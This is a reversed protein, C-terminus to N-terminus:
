EFVSSLVKSREARFFFRESLTPLFSSSIYERGDNYECAAIKTVNIVLGILKPSYKWILSNLSENANQTKGGLCRRLLKLHSLDKFVPKIVESVAKPLTNKHSFDNVTNNDVSVNYKCWSNKGTPCFWHKPEDDTSYTHAWVAWVVQRMENVNHSKARIANGYFTTWKSIIADTVRGKGGITKGDSLKKKGRLAKLKWLRNGMQKQVHGVCEIKVIPVSDRYPEKEAISLFTKSDGDGIYRQYKLGHKQTPGKHSDCGKCYSSVVEMDLVKGCDAGILACVGILSTHGRTKWTGDGSVVVSNVTGDIIKEEAAAKKMSANALAESIDAIKANIRDYAKQSVQFEICVDNEYAESIKHASPLKKASSSKNPSVNEFSIIGKESLSKERYMNGQFRKKKPRKGSSTKKLPVDMNLLAKSIRTQREQPGLPNERTRINGGEDRREGTPSMAREPPISRPSAITGEVECDAM